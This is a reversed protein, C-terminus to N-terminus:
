SLASHIIKDNESGKGDLNLYTEKAEVHIPLDTVSGLKPTGQRIKVTLDDDLDASAVHKAEIIGEADFIPDYNDILSMRCEHQMGFDESAKRNFKIIGDVLNLDESQNFSKLSILKGLKSRHHRSIQKILDFSCRYIFKEFYIKYFEGVLLLYALYMWFESVFLLESNSLVFINERDKLHRFVFKLKCDYYKDKFSDENKIKNVISEMESTCSEDEYKIKLDIDGVIIKNTLNVEESFVPLYRVVTYDKIEEFEFYHKREYNIVLKDNNEYHYARTLVELHPKSHTLYSILDLKSGVKRLPGNSLIKFMFSDGLLGTFYIILSIILILIVIFGPFEFLSEKLNFIYVLCLWILTQIGFGVLRNESM